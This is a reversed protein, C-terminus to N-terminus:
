ESKEIQVVEKMFNNILIIASFYIFFLISNINKNKFIFQLSLYCISLILFYGWTKKSHVNKFSYEKGCEECSTELKNLFYPLIMEKKCNLCVRKNKMM